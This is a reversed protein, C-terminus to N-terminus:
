VRSVVDGEIEYNTAGSELLVIVATRHGKNRSHASGEEFVVPLQVQLNTILSVDLFGCAGLGFGGGLCKLEISEIVRTM